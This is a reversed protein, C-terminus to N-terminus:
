VGLLKVATGHCIKAKDAECIPVSEIFQVGADNSESPYDVAFMMTDAGLVQYVCLFTQQTFMGSTTVLFNDRFYESPLRNARCGEKKWHNDMRWLWFPIGEGLHGLIIKTRPHADFLGSAILRMAHLSTDAAFGWTAMMLTPYPAILDLMKQPPEKPHLYIPVGLTAAREFLVWYKREDLYEGGVHSNLKGGVFGLRTVARELEDAAAAPDGYALTAFAAFRQRNPKIKDAVEDNIDRALATGTAHDFEEVGPGTMSLIQMDVGSRDMEAIRGAGVDLLQSVRRPTYVQSSTPTRLLREVKNGSGDDVTALRPFDTRARLCDLHAQSIFHEELAIKKM